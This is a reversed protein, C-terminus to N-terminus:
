ASLLAVIARAPLELAARFGQGAWLSM